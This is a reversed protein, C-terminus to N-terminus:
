FQDAARAMVRHQMREWTRASQMGIFALVAAALTVIALVGVIAIITDVAELDMDSGFFSSRVQDKAQMLGVLSLLYLVALVGHLIGAVLGGWWRGKILYAGMLVGAVAYILFVVAFVIAGPESENSDDFSMGLVGLLTFLSYLGFLVITIIGAVVAMTKTIGPAAAPMLQYGPPMGGYGPPMGGYGPGPPMAGYGPGPPAAGPGPPMGGYGPPAAGPGPPM